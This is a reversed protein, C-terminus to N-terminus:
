PGKYVVGKRDTVIINEVRSASCEVMLDSAPSPPPAPARLHRNQTQISQRRGNVWNLLAATSIVATGHQDDHFVPIKM